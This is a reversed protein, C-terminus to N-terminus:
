NYKILEHDMMIKILKKLKTKVKYNFFKKAKSIDGTLVSTKSPRLLKKDIKLYKKYNLGVYSFCNKVFYEVSHVEGTAIVFFDPNKLKMIKWATEAYDKAYGWDIQAKIDGLYINKKKEMTFLVYMKLLKRLSM